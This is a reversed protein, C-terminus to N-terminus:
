MSLINETLKRGNEIYSVSYCITEDKLNVKMTNGKVEFVYEEPKKQLGIM